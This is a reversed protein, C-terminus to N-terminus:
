VSELVADVQEISIRGYKNLKIQGFRVMKAVTQRSIGLMEAAQSMSVQPPRPHREAYLRVALIAIRLEENM